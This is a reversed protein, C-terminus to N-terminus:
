TDVARNQQMRFVHYSVRDNVGRKIVELEDPLFAALKTAILVSYVYSWPERPTLRYSEAIIVIGTKGILNLPGYLIKVHDGVDIPNEM